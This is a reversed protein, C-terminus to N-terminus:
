KSKAAFILIGSIVFNALVGVTYRFLVVSGQLAGTFYRKAVLALLVCNLTLAFWGIARLYQRGIIRRRQLSGGRLIKWGSKRKHHPTGFDPTGPPTPLAMTVLIEKQNLSPLM